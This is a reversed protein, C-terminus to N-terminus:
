KKRAPLLTLLIEAIECIPRCVVYSKVLGIVSSSVGKTPKVEATNNSVIDERDNADFSNLIKRVVAKKKESTSPLSRKTKAVAKSLASTTKFSGEKQVAQSSSFQDNVKVEKVSLGNECKKRRRFEAVKKQTYARNLQKTKERVNKPLADLGIKIRDRRKKEDAAKKKKFDEHGGNAKM